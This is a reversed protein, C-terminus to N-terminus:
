RRPTFAQGQDTTRQGYDTTASGLVTTTLWPCRVVSVVAEHSAQERNFADVAGALPCLRLPEDTRQLGRSAAHGQQTKRAVLVRREALPDAFPRAQNQTPIIHDVTALTREPFLVQLGRNRLMQFAQPSTVEHILHQGIFLQTQGSPLTRVTHEDWIRDFLNRRGNTASM